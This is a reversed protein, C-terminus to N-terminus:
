TVSGARATDNTLGDLVLMSLSRAVASVRVGREVVAGRQACCLHHERLLPEAVVNEGTRGANGRERMGRESVALLGLLLDLDGCGM